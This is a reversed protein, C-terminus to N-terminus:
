EFDMDDEFEMSNEIADRSADDEDKTDCIFDDNQM